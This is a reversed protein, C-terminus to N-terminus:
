KKGLCSQASYHYRQGGKLKVGFRFAGFPRRPDVSDIDLPLVRVIRDCSDMCDHKLTYIGDEMALLM